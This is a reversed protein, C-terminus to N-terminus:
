QNDEKDRIQKEFVKRWCDESEKDCGSVVEGCSYWGGSAPCIGGSCKYNLTQIIEIAESLMLTLRAENMM